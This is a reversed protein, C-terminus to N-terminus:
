CNNMKRWFIARRKNEGRQQWDTSNFITIYFHTERKVSKLLVIYHNPQTIARAPRKFILSKVWFIWLGYIVGLHLWHLSLGLFVCTACLFITCLHICLILIEIKKCNEELVQKSIRHPIDEVAWKTTVLLHACLMCTICLNCVTCIVASTNVTLDLTQLERCQTGTVEKFFLIHFFSCANLCYSVDAERM